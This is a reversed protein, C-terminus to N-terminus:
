IPRQQVVQLLVDNVADDKVVKKSIKNLKYKIYDVQIVGGKLAAHENLMGYLEQIYADALRPQAEEVKVPDATEVMIVMTVTQSVGNQNIIPLLLPDLEVYSFAKEPKDDKKKDEKKKEAVKAADEESISAQAQNQFYFYGGGAGLALM